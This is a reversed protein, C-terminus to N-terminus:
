QVIIVLFHEVSFSMWVSYYVPKGLCMLIVVIFGGRVNRLSFLIVVLGSVVPLMFIRRRFVVKRELDYSMGKTKVRIYKGKAANKRRGYNIMVENLLKGCLFIKEAHMMEVLSVDRVDETLVDMVMIFLLRSFTSGKHVGVKM